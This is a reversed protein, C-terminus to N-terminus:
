KLKGEKELQKAENWITNMDDLSMSKLDIGKKITNEELYNFRRIFKANTSELANDPNIKYLRAANILSFLLDGFEEEQKQPDMNKIEVMLEEFEEKVKGWVQEREAWDFGVNRAKDQIRYAKILSPLASPVGALVSKNGDKEKMKIREWNTEVQGANEANVDGFVHPHRFILKDCLTNCVDAIDFDNTESAIKSYFVIHLLVDGLEKKINPLDNKALADCLEYTEEITNPRISQFTQKSDWPCKARLEDMVDLLREFAALQAKRDNM